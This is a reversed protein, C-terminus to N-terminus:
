EPSAAAESLRLCGAPLTKALQPLDYTELVGHVANVLEGQPVSSRVVDEWSRLTNRLSVRGFLEPELAAAHLAPPGTVGEALLEVKAPKGDAEWTALYRAAVLTDEARMGLMSKGLLYSLFINDWDGGWLGGSPGTEGLDRLDVALVLAGGRVLKEIEGQPDAEAQKGSGHLYLIRREAPDAPQFLLGPLWIGPESQLILKDVRYGERQIEGARKAKALPLEELPRIGAVQRVRALMQDRPESKWRQDRKAAFEGMREVNLDFVSRAAEMLLVQGRPTCRLEEHRRQEFPPETLADDRALLWRRMWRVAAERKLKSFGHKGDVEILDVREAFGMRTYLRKTERFLDWSGEIDVFDHTATCLLTPKPARLITYDAHDLGHAIQGFINQEADGPGITALRRRFTTVCCSPAACDIRDDLAMLYETLTGGGSNGTCGLREGDVDERGALYDLARMGDWVRYSATNRGVLISGVGVLTHETTSKFKPQGENDLIQYREGQGIPDYCLAAMGGRALLICIHQYGAKGNPTHGCPVLVGPFPPKTKPLYCLATVYHRPRSEFLIKEVRYGDGDLKGVVRADLPTRPPLGGLQKLFFARHQAQYAAIQEPAKLREYAERRREFAAEAQRHLYRKLMQKPSVGDLKAPLVSLDEGRGVASISVLVVVLVAPFLNRLAM